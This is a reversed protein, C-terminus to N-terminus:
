NIEMELLHSSLTKGHPDIRHTRTVGGGLQNNIVLTFALLDPLPMISVNEPSTNFHNGISDCSLSAEVLEYDAPDFPALFLISSDGKDGARSHAIEFLKM